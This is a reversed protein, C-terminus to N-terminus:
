AGARLAQWLACGRQRRLCGRRRPHRCLRPKRPRHAPAARSVWLDIGLAELYQQRQQPLM